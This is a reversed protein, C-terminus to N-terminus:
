ELLNQALRRGLFLGGATGLVSAFYATMLGAFMGLKWGVWGGGVAFVISFFRIM